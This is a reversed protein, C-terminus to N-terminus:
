GGTECNYNDDSRLTWNSGRLDVYGAHKLRSLQPSLSTRQLPYERKRNLEALIDLAIMGKPNERLINIVDSMITGPKLKRKNHKHEEASSTTTTPVETHEAVKLAYREQSIVVLQARLRAEEDNLERRRRTIFEALTEVV